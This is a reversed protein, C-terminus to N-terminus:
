FGIWNGGLERRLFAVLGRWLVVCLPGGVAIGAWFHADSLIAM